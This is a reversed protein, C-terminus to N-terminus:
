HVQAFGAGPRAFVGARRAGKLWYYLSIAAVILYLLGAYVTQQSLVGTDGPIHIYPYHQNILSGVVFLMLAGTLSFFTCFVACASVGPPPKAAAKPSMATTYASLWSSM